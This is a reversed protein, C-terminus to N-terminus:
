VHAALEVWAVWCVRWAWTGQQAVWQCARARVCTCGHEHVSLHGVSDRVECGGSTHRTCFGVWLVILVSAQSM